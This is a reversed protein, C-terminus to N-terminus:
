QNEESASGLKGAVAPALMESVARAARAHPHSDDGPRFYEGIARGYFRDLVDVCTVGHEVCYDLVVRQRETAQERDPANLQWDRPFLVIVLPIDRPELLGRLGDLSGTVAATEAPKLPKGNAPPYLGLERLWDRVALAAAASLSWLRLRSLWGAPGGAAAETLLHKQGALVGVVGPRSKFDNTYIGLVVINPDYALGRKHRFFAVEQIANYNPVGFNVCDFSRGLRHSVIRSLQAPITTDDDLGVGFM